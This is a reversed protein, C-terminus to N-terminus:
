QINYDKLLNHYKAFECTNGIIKCPNGVIISDSPINGKVVCGAGVIVNNGLISGPLISVRAGIFCNDGIKIGKLFYMEGQGRPIKIGISENATTISFDHTLFMVERSITINNGLEIISYDTGDFYVDSNIYKPIGRIKIGKQVLYKTFYKMYIDDSFIQLKKIVKLKLLNIVSSLFSM